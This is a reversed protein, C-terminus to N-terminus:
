QLVSLRCALGHLETKQALASGDTRSHNHKTTITRTGAIAEVPFSFWFRSGNGPESEVGITGGMLEIMQKSIALGLGTGEYSRTSSGDAQAFCDFIGEQKEPPIGIGSDRVSFFLYFGEERAREDGTGNNSNCIADRDVEVVVEGRETFKVANPPRSGRGERVRRAKGGLEKM